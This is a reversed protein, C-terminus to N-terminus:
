WERSVLEVANLVCTLLAIHDPRVLHRYKRAYQPDYLYRIATFANQSQMLFVRLNEGTRDRGIKELEGRFAEEISEQVEFPLFDFLKLLEHIQHDKKLVGNTKFLLYKLFYETALPLFIFSAYTMERVHHPRGIDYLANYALYASRALFLVFEPSTIAQIQAEDGLQLKAEREARRKPDQVFTITGEEEERHVVRGEVLTERAVRATVTTKDSKASSQDKKLRGRGHLILEGTGMPTIRWNVEAEGSNWPVPIEDIRFRFKVWVIRGVLPNLIGSTVQNRTLETHIVWGTRNEQTNIESCIHQSIDNRDVILDFARQNDSNSMMEESFSCQTGM